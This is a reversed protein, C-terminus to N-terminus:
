LDESNCVPRRKPVPRKIRVTVSKSCDTHQQNAAIIEQQHIAYQKTEDYYKNVINLGWTTNVPNGLITYYYTLTMRIGPITKGSSIMKDLTVIWSDPIVDIGFLTRIFEYLEEKQFEITEAEKIITPYCSDCYLKGNFLHGSGIIMMQCMPCRRAKAGAM